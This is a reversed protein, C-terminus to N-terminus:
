SHLKLIIYSMKVSKKLRLLNGIVTAGYNSKFAFTIDIFNLNETSSALM